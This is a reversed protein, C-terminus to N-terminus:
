RRDLSVLSNSALCTPEPSTRMLEDRLAQPDTLTGSGDPLVLWTRGRTTRGPLPCTLTKGQGAATTGPFHWTDATGAPVLFEVAHRPTCLLVPGTIGGQGRLVALADAGPGRLCRVMDFLGGLPIRVLGDEWVPEEGSAGSASFLWASGRALQVGAAPTGPETSHLTGV